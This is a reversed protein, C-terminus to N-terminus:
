RLVSLVAQGSLKMAGRGYIIKTASNRASNKNIKPVISRKAIKVYQYIPHKEAPALIIGLVNVLAINTKVNSTHSNQMVATVFHLIKRM